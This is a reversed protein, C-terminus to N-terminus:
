RILNVSGKKIIERGDSMIIKCVYMYVGSPQMRGNQTGDWGKSQDHSEYLKEGWQNFIMMTIEKVGTGYVKLVDNLGDGNPTFANPIFLEKYCDIVKIAQTTDDKCGAATAVSLKVNFSGAATYAASPNNITSTTSNGFDWNWTDVSSGDPLTDVSTFLVNEGICPQMNSAKFWAFKAPCVDFEYAGIDPTKLSRTVDVIDDLVGVPVGLNDM